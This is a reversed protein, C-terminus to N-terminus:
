LGMKHHCCLLQLKQLPRTDARQGQVCHHRQWSKCNINPDTFRYILETCAGDAIQHTIKFLKNYWETAKQAKMWQRNQRNLYSHLYEHYALHQWVQDLPSCDNNGQMVRKYGQATSSLSLTRVGTWLESVEAVQGPECFPPSVNRCRILNNPKKNLVPARHTDM